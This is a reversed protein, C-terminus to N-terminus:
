SQDMAYSQVGAPVSFNLACLAKLSSRAVVSSVPVLFPSIEPESSGTSPPVQRHKCEGLGAQNSHTHTNTNVPLTTVSASAVEGGETSCKLPQKPLRLSYPSHYPGNLVLTRHSLKGSLYNQSVCSSNKPPLSREGNRSGSSPWAM